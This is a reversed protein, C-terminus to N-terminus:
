EEKKAKKKPKEEKEEEKVEEVKKPKPAPKPAPAPAAKKALREARREKRLVMKVANEAGHDAFGQILKNLSNPKFFRCELKSFVGLFGDRFNGKIAPKGARGYKCSCEPVFKFHIGTLPSRVHIVPKALITYRIAFLAFRNALDPFVEIDGGIINLVFGLGM